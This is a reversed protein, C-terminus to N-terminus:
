FTYCAVKLAWVVSRSEAVRCSNETKLFLYFQSRNFIKCSICVLYNFNSLHNRINSFCLFIIFNFTMSFWFIRTANGFRTRDTHFKFSLYYLKMYIVACLSTVKTKSTFLFYLLQNRLHTSPTLFSKRPLTYLRYVITYMCNSIKLKVRNPSTVRAQSPSSSSEYFSYVWRLAQSTNASRRPKRNRISGM